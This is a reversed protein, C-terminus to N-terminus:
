GSRRRGSGVDGAKAQSESPAYNGPRRKIPLTYDVAEISPVLLDGAADCGTLRRGAQAARHDRM